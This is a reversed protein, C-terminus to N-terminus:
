NRSAWPRGHTWNSTREFAPTWWTPRRLDAFCVCATRWGVRLTDSNRALRPRRKCCWRPWSPQIMPTAMVAKLVKNLNVRVERYEELNSDAELFNADFQTKTYAPQVVSIRIGRTRVEHDLHRYRCLPTERM